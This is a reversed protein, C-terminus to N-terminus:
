GLVEVTATKRGFQIADNYHRFWIDVHGYATASRDHVEFVRDGFLSPIRFKTGFPLNYPGAAVGETCWTGDATYWPSADTQNGISNYGTISATFRSKVVFKPKQKPLPTRAKNVQAAQITAMSQQMPFVQAKAPPLSKVLSASVDADGEISYIGTFAASVAIVLALLRAQSKQANKLQAFNLKM